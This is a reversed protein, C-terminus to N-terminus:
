VWGKDIAEKAKDPTSFWELICEGDMVVYGEQYYAGNILTETAKCIFYNRYFTKGGQELEEKDM